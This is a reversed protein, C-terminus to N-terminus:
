RLDKRVIEKSINLEFFLFDLFYDEKIKQGKLILYRIQNLETIKINRELIHHANNIMETRHIGVQSNHIIFNRTIWISWNLIFSHTFKGVKSNVIQYFSSKIRENRKYDGYLDIEWKEVIKCETFLHLSDFKNDCLECKRNITRFFNFTLKRIFDKINPMCSIKLQWIKKLKVGKEIWKNQNKTFLDKDTQTYFFITKL